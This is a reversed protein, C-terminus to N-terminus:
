LFICIVDFGVEGKVVGPPIYISSPAPKPAAAVEPQSSVPVKKWPNKENDDTQQQESEINGDSSLIQNQEEEDLLLQGLKQLLISIKFFLRVISIFYSITYM